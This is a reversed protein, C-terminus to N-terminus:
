FGEGLLSFAGWYFPHRYGPRAMTELMAERLLEARTKRTGGALGRHLSIMLDRTAASDVKWQSLLSASAGAATLSWGLGLLGEGREAKGLGTECASLIVLEARLPTDLLQRAEVLGDVHEADPTLLLGSYMPDSNNMESHSAVHIVRATPALAVFEGATAQAAVRAAVDKAPYLTRIAAVEEASEPLLNKAGGAALPNGMALLQVAARGEPKARRRIERLATLSPTYSIAHGEIVAKGDRGTLVAFPLQWLDGDPAIVWETTGSLAEAAPGLVKAYLRQATEAWGLSREALQARFREVERGLEGGKDAIRFGKVQPAGDTGLRVVFMAIGDPLGFYAVLARRRTPLLEAMQTLGAPEVDARQIALEPHLAYIAHDFESVADRALTAKTRNAASPTRLEDRNAAAMTKLLQERESRQRADMAHEFGGGGAALLDMLARAKAQETLRLAQEARGRGLALGVAEQYVPFAERMLGRRAAPDGSEAARISEVIALSEAYREEAEDPRKEKEAMLGLVRLAEYARYPSAVDRALQLAEEAKELGAPM